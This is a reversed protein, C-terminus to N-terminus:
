GSIRWNVLGAGDAGYGYAPGRSSGGYGGGGGGGGDGGTPAYYRGTTQPRYNSVVKPDYRTWNGDVDLRYGLAMMFEETSGFGAGSFPLEAAVRASIRNPLQNRNGTKGYEYISLGTYRAAWAINSMDSAATPPGDPSPSASNLAPTQGWTAGTHIASPQTPTRGAAGGQGTAAPLGSLRAASAPVPPRAPTTGQTMRQPNLTRGATGGSATGGTQRAAAPIGSFPDVKGKAPTKLQAAMASGPVVGSATYPNYIPPKGVAGKGNSYTAKGPTAGAPPTGAGGFSPIAPPGFSPVSPGGGSNGMQAQGGSFGTPVGAWQEQTIVPTQSLDFDPLDIVDGPHLIDQISRGNAQALEILWRQNGYHDGAIRAWSDGSKVTYSAM